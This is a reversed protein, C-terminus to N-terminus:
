DYGSDLFSGHGGGWKYPKGRIANTGWIARKVAEPADTPAYAVGEHVIARSGSVTPRSGGHLTGPSPTDDDSAVPRYVPVPPLSYTYTDSYYYYSQARASLAALLLAGFIILSRVFPMSNKKFAPNAGHAAPPCSRFGGSFLNGSTRTAGSKM